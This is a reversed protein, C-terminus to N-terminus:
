NVVNHKKAKSAGFYQTEITYSCKKQFDWALWRLRLISLLVTEECLDLATSPWSHHKYARSGGIRPLVM